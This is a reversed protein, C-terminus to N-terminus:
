PEHRAIWKEHQLDVYRDTMGALYDGVSRPLGWDNARERFREPLLDPRRLYLAFLDRLMDQARARVALVDPHRYVRHHLFHELERKKDALESGPEIIRLAAHVHEVSQVALSAIRRRSERVLDDVQHEILDDLVARVRHSSIIGPNREAVRRDAERWLSLELLEDFRVLGLVIADDSDHTDYTLSDAAEVVQAELSPSPPGPRRVARDQQGDLVEFSLNLGPFDPFRRELLEVIRLAQRNHSFGGEDRLCDNLVREGDHGFPPHGLDHALALAEILDLNLGLARGLARAMTSVELTHTLRTRHYDGLGGGFVQTKHSLRRFAASRVIREVDSAFGTLFLSEREPFKRGRSQHPGVAYPALTGTAANM